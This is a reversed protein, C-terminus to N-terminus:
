ALSWAPEASVSLQGYVMIAVRVSAVVTPCHAQPILQAANRKHKRMRLRDRVQFRANCGGNNCAPEEPQDGQM